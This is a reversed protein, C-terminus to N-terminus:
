RAPRGPGTSLRELHRGVALVPITGCPRPANTSLLVRRAVNPVNDPSEGVRRRLEARAEDPFYGRTILVGIARNVAGLDALGTVGSKPLPDPLPGDLVVRPDPGNIRQLGAALQVFAGAEGAFFVVTCAMQDPWGSDVPLALSSCALRTPDTDMATTTVAFGDFRQTMTLGVFSPVASLLDDLLVDLIAQLDTDPSGSTATLASLQAILATSYNM